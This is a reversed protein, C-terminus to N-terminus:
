SQSANDESYPKTPYLAFSSYLNRLALGAANFRQERGRSPLVIIKNKEREVDPTLYFSPTCFSVMRFGSSQCTWRRSPAISSVSSGKVAFRKPRAMAIGFREGSGTTVVSCARAYLFRTRPAALSKGEKLGNIVKYRVSLEEGSSISFPHEETPVNQGKFRIFVFQGPKFRLPKKKHELYVETIDELRNIKTVVYPHM